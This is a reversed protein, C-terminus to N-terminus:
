SNNILKKLLEITEHHNTKERIELNNIVNDEMEINRRIAELELDSLWGNKMIARAQDCIRKETKEFMGRIKWQSYTRKRYGRIPVGTESIPRSRYCCQMVITNVNKTWEKRATAPHHDARHKEDTPLRGPSCSERYPGTEKVGNNSFSM